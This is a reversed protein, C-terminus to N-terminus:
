RENFSLSSVSRGTPFCSDVFTLFCIYFFFFFSFFLFSLFPASLGTEGVSDTGNLARSRDYGEWIDTMSRRAPENREIARAENRERTRDASYIM